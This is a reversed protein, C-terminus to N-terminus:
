AVLARLRVIMKNMIREQKTKNRNPLNHYNIIHNTETKILELRYLSYNRTVILLRVGDNRAPQPCYLPPAPLYLDQPVMWDLKSISEKLMVVLQRIIGPVLNLDAVM